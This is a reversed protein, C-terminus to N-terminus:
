RERRFLGRKQKASEILSEIHKDNELKIAELNQSHKTLEEVKSELMMIHEKSKQIQSLLMGKTKLAMLDEQLENHWDPKKETKTIIGLGYGSPIEIYHYQNDNKIEDWLKWVGFDGTRVNWDHFLITGGNKLKKNWVLYDNKVADYTHLGDIHIIDITKDSFYNSADDFTSRILNCRETHYKKRHESVQNYVINSYYGAQKDGEWTDVAHVFTSPSYKEAAECFSFLSVGYHSGLEVIIEPKTREVLWHAIPVHEWWSSPAFYRPIIELNKNTNM